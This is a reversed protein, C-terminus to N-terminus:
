NAAYQRKGNIIPLTLCFCTHGGEDTLELKGGHEEAITTSLSLGLGTGKGVEKTTFFPEMIRTRLAAPVGPGSDTVSFLLANERVAVDLRVWREGPEDAVADFANQLLNLLVQAIQVERCVVKLTPDIEPIILKVSRSRFRERCMELTEEVIRGVQTTSFDDQSGERAIRRLSKVIRAIRNATERIRKSNRVVDERPMQETEQSLDLLDSACAHIITLPNNIEHAIGGAMMGLSSLRSSAELQAQMRRQETVDINIGVMRVPEGHEDLVAGQASSVYRLSGDTRLIRFEVYDQSKLRIARQLSEEVRALDDPHVLRAWKQYDMSEHRPVGYMEYCTDDWISQNTRLDWEWVGISAVHTALSLRETQLRLQSEAQKRATINRNIELIKDPGGAEDQLRSWRSAVVIERGDRTIHTLEGEWQGHAAVTNEIEQLPIPFQTKLLEHTIRGLAEEVSWGYTDVAGKNWFAVHAQQDRVIIADHARELLIAQEKLQQESQKRQTIDRLALTTRLDGSTDKFVVSSIEIPFLSGDKRKARLEGHGQGTRARDEIIQQLRPDGTDMIGARGAKRIEEATRGLIACASPNAAQISGDVRTLLLGDFSNDFAMRYVLLDRNRERAQLALRITIGLLMAVLFGGVLLVQAFLAFRSEEHLVLAQWLGLVGAAVAFAASVPLWEPLGPKAKEQWSLAVLGFGLLIFGAATHPAVRTLQGWGYAETHGIFFGLVSVGGVVVLVCGVIGRLASTRQSFISSWATLIGVSFAFFCVATVPSMRGRHSTHTNVYAPGLLEDIGLSFGLVYELIVLVSMVLILSQLLSSTRRRGLAAFILAAGSLLFGLATMRQMPAAVSPFVQILPLYGLRWGVLVAAGLTASVTGAVLSIRGPWNAQMPTM